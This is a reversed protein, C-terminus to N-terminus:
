PKPPGLRSCDGSFPVCVRAKKKVWPFFQLGDAFFQLAVGCGSDPGGRVPERRLEPFFLPATIFDESNELSMNAVSANARVVPAKAASVWLLLKSSEAEV